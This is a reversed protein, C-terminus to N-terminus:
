CYNRGVTYKEIENSHDEIETVSRTLKSYKSLVRNVRQPSYKKALNFFIDECTYFDVLNNRIISLISAVRKKDELEIVNDPKYKVALINVRYDIEALNKISKKLIFHHVDIDKENLYRNVISKIDISIDFNTLHM